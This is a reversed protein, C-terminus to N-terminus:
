LALKSTITDVMPLWNKVLQRAKLNFQVEAFIILSNREELHVGYLLQLQM